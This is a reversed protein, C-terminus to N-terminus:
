LPRRPDPIGTAELTSREAAYSGRDGMAIAGAHGLRRESPAAAFAALAARAPPSTASISFRTRRSVDADAQESM